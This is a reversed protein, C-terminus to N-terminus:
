RTAVNYLIVILEVILSMWLFLRFRCSTSTSMRTICVQKAVSDSLRQRCSSCRLVVYMLNCLQELQKGRCAMIILSSNIILFRRVFFIWRSPVIFSLSASFGGFCPLILTTSGDILRPKISNQFLFEESHNKFLLTCALPPLLAKYGVLFILLTM